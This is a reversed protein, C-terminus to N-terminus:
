WIRTASIMTTLTVNGTLTGRSVTVAVRKYESTGSGLAQWTGGSTIAPNLYIVTVSRSYGGTPTDSYGNFDDIDDWNSKNATTENNTGDLGKTSTDPGLSTSWPYFSSEDFRKSKIEEMLQEAYFTAVSVSESRASKYSVEAFLRLLVPIALGLVVIVAVAEILTLGKKNM